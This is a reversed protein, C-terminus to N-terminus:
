SGCGASSRMTDLTAGREDASEKQFGDDHMAGTFIRDTLVEFVPNVLVVWNSHDINKDICEIQPL